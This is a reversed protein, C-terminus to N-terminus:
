KGLGTYKSSDIRLAQNSIVKNVANIIDEITEAKYEKTAGNDRYNEGRRFSGCSSIAMLSETLEKYVPTNSDSPLNHTTIKNFRLTLVQSNGVKNLEVTVDTEVSKDFGRHALEAKISDALDVKFDELLKAYSAPDQSLLTPTKEALIAALKSM